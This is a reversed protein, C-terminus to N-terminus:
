APGSPAPGNCIHLLDEFIDDADMTMLELVFSCNNCKITGEYTAYTM